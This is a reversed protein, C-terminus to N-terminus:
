DDKKINMDTDSIFKDNTILDPSWPFGHYQGKNHGPIIPYKIINFYSSYDFDSPVFLRPNRHIMVIKGEKEEIILPLIPFDVSIFAEAILASCIDKSTKSPKHRRFLSSRWKQPLWKSAILYRGLDFFHRMNYDGGLHAVAFDIVRQTDDFSIGTPRCIRIHEESYEDITNIVTGQGPWTELLLQQSPDGKHHMEIIARTKPCQISHVRGIYLSAHTWCSHTIRKIMGSVVSSGEMLLVDGPIIEHCIRSFDCLHARPKNTSPKTSLAKLVLRRLIGGKTIKKHPVTVTERGTALKQCTSRPILRGPRNHALLYALRLYLM